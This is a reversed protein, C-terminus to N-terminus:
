PSLFEVLFQGYPFGFCIHSRFHHLLNLSACSKWLDSFLRRDLKILIMLKDQHIKCHLWDSQSCEVTILIDIHAWMMLHLLWSDFIVDRPRKLKTKCKKKGELIIKFSLICFACCHISAPGALASQFFIFFDGFITWQFKLKARTANMEHQDNQPNCIRESTRYITDGTM